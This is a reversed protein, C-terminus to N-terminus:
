KEGQELLELWDLEIEVGNCSRCGKYMVTAIAGEIKLITLEKDEPIGSCQRIIRCKDGVKFCSHAPTFFNSTTDGSNINSANVTSSQLPIAKTFNSNDAKIVQAEELSDTSAITSATTSAVSSTVDPHSALSAIQWIKRTSEIKLMIRRLELPELTHASELIQLLIHEIAESAECERQSRTTPEVSAESVAESVAEVAESFNIGDLYSQGRRDRIQAEVRRTIKPFLESFRQHVQNAAKVNRDFRNVQDHWEQKEKGDSNKHIELTGNAIYWNRLKEWLENIYIRGGAQYNLGVQNTFAWLHNTQQQIDELAKQTCKYDIGESILRPLAALIKNLLAPVVESQLFNPDYRFRGDAELEGKSAEANVKYTKNFSLVAWRSQIAELGAQLTPAENINFLFVTNLLMPREDQNKREVDLPDGTIAAKLSQLNDINKFSSNESSWNIISGELKALTFKRAQDYSSFDNVTASTMGTGYLYSAAERLSDKGNSGYGQCLLAKVERGRYRRITALDLSAALTKLFIDQQETSLCALLRDCQATDAKPDYNIKSTYTYFDEQNHPELRWTVKKDKWNLKVTGNLCNIGPPNIVSPDVAFALIVWNWINEIYSSKAYAYKWREGSQIPTSACWQAIRSKVVADPVLAYHSGEWRHLHGNLSIWRTDSFLAATAKQTFIEDAEPLTFDLQETKHEPRDSELKPPASSYVRGGIAAKIDEATAGDSIWDGIDLGGSEAIREWFYDSPPAYLWQANPFDQAVDEMHRIGPKDRDPCLVLNAGELDEKYSGYVRYKGAGGIATTAQLGLNCLAEAKGEGEVFFIIEGRSIAERIQPYRYLPIQAQIEDTLGNIYRRRDCDWRSQPCGKKKGEKYLHTVKVLKNGQRDCYFYDRKGDVRAAKKVQVPAYYPTGEKDAKSTKEWGTAPENPRKCVTLEGLRYCWDPKGCHPCPESETARIIAKTNSRTNDIM